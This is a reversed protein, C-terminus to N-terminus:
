CLLLSTVVFCQSLLSFTASFDRNSIEPGASNIEIFRMGCGHKCSGQYEM